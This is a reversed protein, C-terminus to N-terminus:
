YVVEIPEFGNNISAIVADIVVQTKRSIISWKKDPKAEGSRIGEVLRAFEQVMLAEQPFITPIRFESPEPECGLSLEAWKSNAVAYFPGVKENFPIVFDHVRISGKTGLAIIDMCLNSLFSCYFTAVKGNDEWKLSAGCSLIVGSENYEPDRLAIVTKPLEYGHAWLIARISYWGTDGLAGLSDLNPNVRVDNKQFDGEGVYTFTSHVSKLQGFRQEDSLVEKMKATRPHHMWMTGDMFQVGSSECAKLITDLEGVNLALPKELLVHKKKEAALVAWRLHLSTPLPIYIADVDPDELVADYSGYVKTSEPFHNESAFATAKDLSRSGIASITTNPSLLMARSVKRAINACGLIGFRIRTEAM